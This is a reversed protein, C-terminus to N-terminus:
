LSNSANPTQSAECGPSRTGGAAEPSDNAVSGCKPCCGPETGPGGCGMSTCANRRGQRDCAEFSSKQDEVAQGAGSESSAM